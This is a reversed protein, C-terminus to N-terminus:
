KTDKKDDGADRRPLLERLSEIIRTFGAPGGQTVAYFLFIGAITWFGQEKYIAYFLAAILAVAAFVAVGLSTYAQFKGFKFRAARQEEAHAESSANMRKVFGPDHKEIEAILLDPRDTYSSVLAILTQNLSADSPVATDDPPLVEGERANASDDQDSM